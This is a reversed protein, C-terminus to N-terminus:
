GNEILKGLHMCPLQKTFDRWSPQNSLQGAVIVATAPGGSKALIGNGVGSIPIFHLGASAALQKAENFAGTSGVPLIDHIGEMNSLTYLQAFSIAAPDGRFVNDLPASKPMGILWVEDGNRGSGPRFREHTVHGAVTVGLATVQASINDESSGTIPFTDPLGSEQVAVRIGSIIRKAYAGGTSLTNIVLRPTVNASILEFLAVRTTFYGVDEAPAAYEDHLREGIGGLSDTAFVIWEDHLSKWITLDRIQVIEQM